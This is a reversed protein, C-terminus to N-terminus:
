RWFDNGAARGLGWAFDQEGVRKLVGLEGRAAQGCCIAARNLDAASDREIQARARDGVPFVSRADRRGCYAAIIDVLGSLGLCVLRVESVDFPSDHAEVTRVTVGTEIRELSVDGVDVVIAAGDVAGDGVIGGGGPRSRDEAGRVGRVCLGEGVLDDIHM